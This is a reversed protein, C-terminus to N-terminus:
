VLAFADITTFVFIRRCDKGRYESQRQLLTVELPYRVFVFLFNGTYKESYLSDKKHEIKFCWGGIIIKKDM